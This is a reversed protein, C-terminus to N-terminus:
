CPVYKLLVHLAGFVPEFLLAQCKYEILTFYTLKLSSAM